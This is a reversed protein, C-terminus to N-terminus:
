LSGRHLGVVLFWDCHVEQQWEKSSSDRLRREEVQSKSHTVWDIIKQSQHDSCVKM